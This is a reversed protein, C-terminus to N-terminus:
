VTGSPPPLVIHTGDDRNTLGPLLSIFVRNILEYKRWRRIYKHGYTDCLLRGNNNNKTEKTHKRNGISAPLTDPIHNRPSTFNEWHDHQRTPPSTGTDNRPSWTRFPSEEYKIAQLCCYFIDVFQLSTTGRTTGLQVGRKLNTTARTVEDRSFRELDM